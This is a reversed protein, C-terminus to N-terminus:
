DGYESLFYKIEHRLAEIMKDFKSSFDDSPLLEKKEMIGADTHIQIDVMNYEKIVSSPKIKIVIENIRM